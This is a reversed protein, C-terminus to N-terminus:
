SLDVVGLLKSTLVVTHWEGPLVDVQLGHLAHHSVHIDSVRAAHVPSLEESVNDELCGVEGGFSRQLFGLRRGSATAICVTLLEALRSEPEIRILARLVSLIRFGEVPAV